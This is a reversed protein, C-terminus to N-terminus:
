DAATGFDQPYFFSYTVIDKRPRVIFSTMEVNDFTRTLTVRSAENSVMNAIGLRGALSTQSSGPDPLNAATFYFATTVCTPEGDCGLTNKDVGVSVGAVEKGECDLVYALLLGLEPDVTVGAIAATTARFEREFMVIPRPDVTKGLITRYMQYETELLPLDPKSPHTAQLRITYNKGNELGRIVLVNDKYSIDDTATTACVTDLFECVRVKLNGVGTELEGTAPFIYTVKVELSGESSMNEPLRLDPLGLCGWQPDKCIGTACSVTPSTGCDAKKVCEIQGCRKEARMCLAAGEYSACETSTTCSAKSEEVCRMTATNCLKDDDCDDSAACEPKACTGELCIGPQRCEDNTECGIQRECFGAQGCMYPAACESSKACQKAEPDIALSCAAVVFSAAFPLLGRAAHMWM